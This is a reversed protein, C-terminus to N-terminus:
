HGNACGSTPHYIDMPWLDDTGIPPATKYIDRAGCWQFCFSLHLPKVCASRKGSFKHRADLQRHERRIDSIARTHKSLKIELASCFLAPSVQAANDSTM